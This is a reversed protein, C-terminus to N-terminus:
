KLLDVCTKEILTQSEPAAFAWTPEYGGEAFHRELPIYGPGGDGYGAVCVFKDPAQDQAFLQYEVFPEGPLHLVRAVDGLHLCGFPISSGAAVGRQFSAQMAAGIRTGAPKQADHAVAVLESEVADQRVRLVVPSVRWAIHSLPVVRANQEAERMATEIRDRLVPRNAHNGDNYKGATVNGGCGTFYINPVGTREARQDRAMGVFDCSVVGEGYYSMPHTAYYHLVALTKEGNRFVLTKLLPDILGEPAERIAPDKTASTRVHKVKGDPGMVRRNSAVQAVRAQGLGIHTAPQAANLSEAVARAVRAITQRQWEGDQVALPTDSTALIRHAESDAIPADHQHLSQVAVHDATTGAAKALESRWLLHDGNRIECWDVACLVIPQPAGLLVIGLARLPESVEAVPKVLGGCLPSGRPPTVDAAFTAVRVGSSKSVPTDAAHSDVAALSPWGSVLTAAAGAAGLHLVSRRTFNKM